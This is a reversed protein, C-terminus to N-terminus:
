IAQSNHQNSIRNVRYAGRLLHIISMFACVVFDFYVCYTAVFFPVFTYSYCARVLARVHVQDTISAVAPQQSQRHARNINAAVTVSPAQLKAASAVVDVGV